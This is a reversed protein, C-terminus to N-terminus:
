NPTQAEIIGLVQLALQSANHWRSNKLIESGSLRLDILAITKYRLSELSRVMDAPIQSATALERLNDVCLTARVDCDLNEYVQYNLEDASTQPV